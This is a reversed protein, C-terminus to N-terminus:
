EDIIHRGVLGSIENRHCCNKCGAACTGHVYRSATNGTLGAVGGVVEKTTDTALGGASAAAHSGHKVTQSAVQCACVM